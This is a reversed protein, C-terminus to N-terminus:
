FAFTCVKKCYDFFLTYKQLIMHSLYGGDDDSLIFLAVDPATQSRQFTYDVFHNDDIGTGGVTGLDEAAFGPRVELM